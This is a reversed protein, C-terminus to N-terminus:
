KPSRELRNIKGASAPVNKEYLIKDLCLSCAGFATCNAKNLIAM